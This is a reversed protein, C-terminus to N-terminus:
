SLTAFYWNYLEFSNQFNRFNAFYEERRTEDLCQVELEIKFRVNRCAKPMIKETKMMMTLLLNLSKRNQLQVCYVKCLKQFLKLIIQLM